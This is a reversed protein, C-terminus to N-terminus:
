QLAFIVMRCGTMFKQEHWQLMKFVGACQQASSVKVTTQGNVKLLHEYICTSIYGESVLFRIIPKYNEICM